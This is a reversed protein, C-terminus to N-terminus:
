ALRAHSVTLRDGALRFGAAQVLLLGATAALEAIRDDGDLRVGLGLRFFVLEVEGVADGELALDDAPRDGAFVDGADLVTRTLGGLAAHQRTIRDFADLDREDVTRVVFH